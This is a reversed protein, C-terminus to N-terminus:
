SNASGVSCDALAPCFIMSRTPATLWRRSFACNRATRASSTRWACGQAARGCRSPETSQVRAYFIKQAAECTQGLTHIGAAQRLPLLWRSPPTTRRWCRTGHVPQLAPPVTDIAPQGQQM